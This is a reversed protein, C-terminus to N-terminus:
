DTNILKLQTKKYRAHHLVFHCKRLHSSFLLLSFGKCFKSIVVSFFSFTNHHNWRPSKFYFLTWFSFRALLSVFFLCPLKMLTCSKGLLIMHRNTVSIQLFLILSHLKQALKQKILESLKSLSLVLTQQETLQVMTDAAGNLKGGNISFHWLCKFQSLM